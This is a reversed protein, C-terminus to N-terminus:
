IGTPRKGSADRPDLPGREGEARRTVDGDRDIDVQEKRVTDRVTEVHEGGEKRVVVEEVVRASKGVVAEENTETLEITKDTFADDALSSGTAARREVSVHENRLSVQEEVPTEVVYRRVRTTGRNVVRKGVQLQEEALPIVQEGGVNRTEDLRGTLGSSAVGTEMAPRGRDNSITERSLTDREGMEGGAASGAATGAVAGTETTEYVTSSREFSNAREEIDVPNHSELIQMIKDADRGVDAVRVSVVSGGSEVTRDYVINDRRYDEDETGFLRSWFGPEERRPALAAGSTQATSTESAHHTIDASPVGAEELARVAAEAHASTDYVAVITEQNM